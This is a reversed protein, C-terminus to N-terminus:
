VREVLVAKRLGDPQVVGPDRLRYGVGDVTLLAGEKWASPQTGDRLLLTTSTLKLTTGSPDVVDVDERRLLGYVTGRVGAFVVANGCDQLVFDLESADGLPM